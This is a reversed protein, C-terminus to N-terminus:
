TGFQGCLYLVFQEVHQIGRYLSGPFSASLFHTSSVNRLSRTVPMRKVQAILIGSGLFERSPITM